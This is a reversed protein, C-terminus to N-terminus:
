PPLSAPASPTWTPSAPCTAEPQDSLDKLLTRQIHSVSGLDISGTFAVILCGDRMSHRIEM